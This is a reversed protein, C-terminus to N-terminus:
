TQHVATHLPTGKRARSHRPVTRVMVIKAANALAVAATTLARFVDVVQSVGLANKLGSALAAGIRAHHLPDFGSPPWSWVESAHSPIEVNDCLPGPRLRQLSVFHGGRSSKFRRGSALHWEHSHPSPALPRLGFSHLSGNAGSESSPPCQIRVRPGEWSPAFTSKRRTAIITPRTEGRLRGPGNTLPPPCQRRPRIRCGSEVDEPRASTDRYALEPAPM